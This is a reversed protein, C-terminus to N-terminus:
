KENPVLVQPVIDTVDRCFALIEPTDALQPLAIASVFLGIEIRKLGAAILKKLLAIKATTPIFPKIDQYGDRPGVEVIDVANTAMM